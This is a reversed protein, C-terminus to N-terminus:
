GSNILVRGGGSTQLHINAGSATTIFVDGTPHAVRILTGDPNKIQLEGPPAAPPRHLDHYFPGLAVMHHGVLLVVVQDLKDVIPSAQFGWGPGAFPTILPMWGTEVSQGTDTGGTGGQETSTTAVMVKVSNTAPDHSTIYGFFAPLVPPTGRQYPLKLTEFLSM